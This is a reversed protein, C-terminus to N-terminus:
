AHVYQTRSQCSSCAHATRLPQCDPDSGKEVPRQKLALLRYVRTATPRTAALGFVAETPYAIIGGDRLICTALAAHIPEHECAMLGAPRTLNDAAEQSPM